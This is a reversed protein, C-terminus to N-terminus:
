KTLPRSKQSKIVPESKGKKVIEKALYKATKSIEKDLKNSGAKFKVIIIKLETIITSQIKKLEKQKAAKIAAKTIDQEM